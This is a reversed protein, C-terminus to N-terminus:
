SPDGDLLDLASARRGSARAAFREAASQQQEMYAHRSERDFRRAEADIERARGLVAPDDEGFWQLVADVPVNRLAV